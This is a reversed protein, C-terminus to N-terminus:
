LTKENVTSMDLPVSGLLKEYANKMCSKLVLFALPNLRYFAPKSVIKCGRNLKSQDIGRNGTAAGEYLFDVNPCATAKERLVHAMLDAVQYKLHETKSFSTAEILVGEVVYTVDMASLQDNHYAGLIKVKPFRYLTRAWQAFYKKDTRENKYRYRTREYFSLYVPYAQAIFEEPDRMERVTFVKMGKKITNRRHRGVSDISYGRVEDWIVFNRWSNGMDPGPVVHQYGGLHGAPPIKKSHPVIELFPFLPQYFFPRVRRWWIGDVKTVVAGHASELAAYEDITMREWM